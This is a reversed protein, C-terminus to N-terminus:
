LVFNISKAGAARRYIEEAGNLSVRVTLYAPGLRHVM